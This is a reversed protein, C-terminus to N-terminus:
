SSVWVSLSSSNFASHKKKGVFFNIDDYNAVLRSLRSVERLSINMMEIFSRDFQRSSSVKLCVASMERRCTWRGKSKRHLFRRGPVGSIRATKTHCAEDAQLWLKNISSLTPSRSVTQSKFAWQRSVFAYFSATQNGENFEGHCQFPHPQYDFHLRLHRRRFAVVKLTRTDNVYKCMTEWSAIWFICIDM